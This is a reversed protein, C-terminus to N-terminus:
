ARRAVLKQYASTYFPYDLLEEDNAGQAFFTVGDHHGFAFNWGPPNDDVVRVYSLGDIPTGGFVEDSNSSSAKLPYWVPVGVWQDLNCSAVIDSIGDYVKRDPDNWLAETLTLEMTDVGSGDLGVYQGIAAESGASGLRAGLYAAVDMLGTSACVDVDKSAPEIGAMGVSDVEFGNPLESDTLLLPALPQPTTAPGAPPGSLAWVGVAVAVVTLAM